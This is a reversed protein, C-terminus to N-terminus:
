VETSKLRLVTVEGATEVAIMTLECRGASLMARGYSSFVISRACSVSVFGGISSSSSRTSELNPSTVSAARRARLM